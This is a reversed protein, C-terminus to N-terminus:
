VLSFRRTLLEEPGIQFVVENYLQEEKGNKKTNNPGHAVDFHHILKWVAMSALLVVTPAISVSAGCLSTTAQEDTYLTDQWEKVQKPSNPNFAYIRGNDADMRTEIVLDTNFARGKICNEFIEKRSSMTDTLLFIYTGPKINQNTVRENHITIDFGCKEKIIEKLSEVKSKGIHKILYAQNPLNHEEIVDFDWVDIKTIGIQAMILAAYSGIAGAGIVTVSRGGFDRPNFIALQRLYDIDM